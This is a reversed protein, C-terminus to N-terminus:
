QAMYTCVKDIQEVISGGFKNDFFASGITFYCPSADKVEDLRHFSDISGALCVPAELNSVVARNLALADGTYRYGLLDIGCAGKGICKEAEKIMEEESGGLVSPRGNVEGVFPMYRIGHNKCFDNISDHFKTGMLVDFGCDVAVRAGALGEAETYAVVELFTTKGCAKMRSCLSKMRVLSLPYEKFGWCRAKSHRCQEFVEEANEVTLDNYTLMVVLEPTGNRLRDVM